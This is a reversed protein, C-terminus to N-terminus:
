RVAERAAEGSTRGAPAGLLRGPAQGPPWSQPRCAICCGGAQAALDGPGAAPCQAAPRAEWEPCLVAVIPLGRGSVELLRAGAPAAAALGPHPPQSTTGLDHVHIVGDATVAVTVTGGADGSRTHRIANAFLEALVLEADECAVPGAPAALARVWRRAHAAQDARGPFVRVAVGSV